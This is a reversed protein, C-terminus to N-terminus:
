ALQYVSQYLVERVREFREADLPEPYSLIRMPIAAKGTAYAPQEYPYPNVFFGNRRYFGIRRRALAGSEELEAELCVPKSVAAKLEGLLRSGLGQNRLDPRVAYHELFLFPEFDWLCLLGALGKWDELGYMRYRPHHLVAKQAQRERREDIPFSSCLLEYAIDFESDDIPRLM